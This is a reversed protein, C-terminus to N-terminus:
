WTVTYRTDVYKVIQEEKTVTIYKGSKNPMELCLNVSPPYTKGESVLRWAYRWYRGGESRSPSGDHHLNADLLRAGIDEILKEFPPRRDEESIYVKLDISNALLVFDTDNPLRAEELAARVAEYPRMLKDAKAVEQQKDAVFKEFAKIFIDYRKAPVNKKIAPVM